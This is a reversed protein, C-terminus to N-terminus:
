IFDGDNGPAKQKFSTSFNNYADIPHPMQLGLNWDQNVWAQSGRRGPELRRQPSELPGKSQPHSHCGLGQLPLRPRCLLQLIRVRGSSPPPEASSPRPRQVRESSCPSSFTSQFPSALCLRFLVAKRAASLWGCGDAVQLM